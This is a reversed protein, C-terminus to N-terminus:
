HHLAISRCLSTLEKNQATHYDDKCSQVAGDPLVQRECFKTLGHEGDAIPKSCHLCKRGKLYTKHVPQNEM